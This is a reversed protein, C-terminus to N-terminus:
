VQYNRLCELFNECDDFLECVKASEVLSNNDNLIDKLSCYKYSLLDTKISHKVPNKNIYLISNLLYIETMVEKRRFALEFLKGTRGYNKNIAQTYSNFVNSFQKSVIAEVAYQQKNPFAARIEKETKIEVLLHFHNQMLCYSYFKAVPKIKEELLKLFYFYNRDEFFLTGGNIGRNYVHYYREPQLFIASSM